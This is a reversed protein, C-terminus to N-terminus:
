GKGAQVDPGPPSSKMLVQRLLELAQRCTVQKFVRREYRNIHNVVFTGPTSALAIYVTGVPKAQTGGSPGAIGTIGIAYNSGFRTRAGEAMERATAESVAGDRAITEARVGLLSSKAANGYTVLGCPFVESAGPVDTIRNAVYGGTCSEALVLTEKRGGLLGVVVANLQDDQTGFVNEALQARVIAEGDSVLKHAVEGRAILRVDVEGDRACYGLELGARVLPLLLGAIKEEVVSEAIGTTRLTRCVFPTTLPFKQRLLPLVHRTFMPRLERPPGPLMVVCSAKGDARFTNPRVELALGPATGNPNELVSAGEPVQAQVRARDPMARGREAFFAELRALITDDMVLSKGLLGAVQERTLDDSTPGLGGTVIIFDARGLAERLAQRIQAGQDAIATQRIVEYGAGALERSLWQQHTNLVSGLM